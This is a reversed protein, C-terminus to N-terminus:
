RESMVLLSTRALMTVAFRGICLLTARPVMLLSVALLMAGPFIIMQLIAGILHEM